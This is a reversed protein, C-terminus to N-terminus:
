GSSQPMAAAILEAAHRRAAPSSPDGGMMRALESEREEAEVVRLSTKGEAKDVVLHTDAFAAVQALHTVVIVQRGRALRALRQGVQTATSGGIGADVEDFVYTCASTDAALVLEIALMVRSLEGGSTGQGLPRAPATPHAQLQMNVEHLGYPGPRCPAIDVHFRADPMSLGALEANVRASVQEALLKRAEGLREGVDLVVGQDRTLQEELLMPDSSASTLEELEALAEGHWHLLEAVDGARGTMLRRLLSRREHVEALRSPDVDLSDCYRALDDAAEDIELLASYVREHIERVSRDFRSASVMSDCARRLLDAAGDNMEEGALSALASAALERLDQLNTLKESEERLEEEEGVHPDASSIAETVEQLLEIRANRKGSDERAADLRKKTDVARAWAEEYERLLQAHAEKGFADLTDRQVARSRLRIQDSQGHITVLPAVLEGLTTVPVPRGGVHARSRGQERLTRSVLLEGDEIVGGLEEVQAKLEATADFVGDVGAQSAGRRIRGSDARGGLLLELSTLIMTKGAGTEGTIVTLGEDLHLTAREIVGLGEIDISRIM